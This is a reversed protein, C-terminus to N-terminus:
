SGRAIATLALVLVGLLLNLQLLRTEKGALRLAEPGDAPDSAARRLALRRIEPMLGWTLYASL